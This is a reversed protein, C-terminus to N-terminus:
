HGSIMMGDRGILSTVNGPANIDYVEIHANRVFVAVDTCEPPILAPLALSGKCNAAFQRTICTMDATAYIAGLAQTNALACNGNPDAGYTIDGIVLAELAPQPPFVRSMKVKGVKRNGVAHPPRVVEITAKGKAFFIGLSNCPVPGPCQAQVLSRTTSLSGM